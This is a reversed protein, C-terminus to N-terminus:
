EDIGNDQYIALVPNQNNNDGVAIVYRSHLILEAVQYPSLKKLSTLKKNKPRICNQLDIEDNIYDIMNDHLKIPEIKLQQTIGRLYKCTEKWELSSQAIPPPTHQYKSSSNPM